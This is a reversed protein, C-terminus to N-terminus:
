FNTQFTIDKSLTKTIFLIQNTGLYQKKTFAHKKLNISVAEQFLNSINNDFHEFKTLHEELDKM